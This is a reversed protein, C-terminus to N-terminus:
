VEWFYMYAIVGVILVAASIIAALVAKCVAEAVRRRVNFPEYFSM